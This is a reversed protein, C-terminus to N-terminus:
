ARFMADAVANATGACFALNAHYVYAITEALSLQRTKIIFNFRNSM